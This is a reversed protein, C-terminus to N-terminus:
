KKLKRRDEKAPTNNFESLAREGPVDGGWRQVDIGSEYLNKGSKNKQTWVVRGECHTNNSAGAFSIHVYSAEVLPLKAIVRMGNPGVEVASGKIPTGDPIFRIDIDLAIEYRLDKRRDAGRRQNM